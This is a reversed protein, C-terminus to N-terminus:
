EALVDLKEDVHETEDVYEPEDVPKPEDEIQQEDKEHQDDEAELGHGEDYCQGQQQQAGNEADHQYQRILECCGYLVSESAEM